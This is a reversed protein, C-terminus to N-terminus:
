QKNELAKRITDANPPCGKVHCKAGELCNGIGFGDFEVGKWGQGIAIKSHALSIGDQDMRYLAHVLNGYCASCADKQQVNRTLRAVIGSPRPYFLKEEPQNLAIVDEDGCDARGAGFQEAMSIYAVDKPEIGMLRCGFADIQVMDEGLMMRNTYVPNGGEEFNLDGCISDVVTLAPKLVAALAAIPRHLGMSHFRRKESDPLCGKCNKLACTMVTQCHGKLVPLNILYDTELARKCIKMPGITTTVTEVADTKLDYLPVNYLKGIEDYGCARFGRVTQDGVWSGEIISINKLDHAQLYQIMGELVGAHTTAGGEPSRAVV